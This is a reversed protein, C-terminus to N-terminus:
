AKGDQQGCSACHAADTMALAVPWDVAARGGADLLLKLRGEAQRTLQGICRGRLKFVSPVRVVGVVGLTKLVGHGRRM